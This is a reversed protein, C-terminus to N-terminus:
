AKLSLPLSPNPFNRSNPSLETEILQLTFRIGKERFETKNPNVPIERAQHAFGNTLIHDAEAITQIIQEEVTLLSALDALNHNYSFTFPGHLLDTIKIIGQEVADSNVAYHSGRRLGAGLHTIFEETLSRVKNRQNEQRAIAVTDTQPVEPPLQTPQSTAQKPLQTSNTQELLM